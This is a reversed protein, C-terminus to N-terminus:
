LGLGASGDPVRSRCLKSRGQFRGSARKGCWRTCISDLSNSPSHPEPHIHVPPGWDDWKLVGPLSFWGQVWLFGLCPLQDYQIGLPLPLLSPLLPLLGPLSDTPPLVPYSPSRSPFPLISPLLPGKPRLPCGPSLYLCAASPHFFHVLSHTGHPCLWPLCTDLLESVVELAALSHGCAPSVTAWSTLCAARLVECSVTVLSASEGVPLALALGVTELDEVRVGPGTKQKRGEPPCTSTWGPAGQSPLVSSCFALPWLSRPSSVAGGAWSSVCAHTPTM